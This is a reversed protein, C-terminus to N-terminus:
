SFDNMELFMLNLGSITLWIIGCAMNKETINMGLGFSYVRM